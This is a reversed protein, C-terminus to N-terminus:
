FSWLDLPDLSQHLFQQARADESQAKATELARDAASDSVFARFSKQGPLQTPPLSFVVAPPPPQKKRHEPPHLIPATQAEFLTAYTNDLFDDLNYRERLFPEALIRSLTAVAHHYHSQGGLGASRPDRGQNEAAALSSGLAALEWLSSDIAKTKTPDPERADFPDEVGLPGQALRDIEGKMYESTFNRHILVMCQQHRKLLTWILPIVSVVAAPPARLALRSLRKIFSAVMTAPLLPSALFTDLLRLFRARYRMHLVSTTIKEEEGSKETAQNQSTPTRTSGGLLSYLRTYFAPYDLNHYAMLTYLANLALLSTAGGAELATVLWDLLMNPTTLHPLIQIHLRLLLDHTQTLSLTGGKVKGHEVKPLLLALWASTFANAQQTIMHVAEHFPMKSLKPRNRKNAREAVDGLIATNPRGMRRKKRSSSEEQEEESDSFWDDLAADDEPEDGDQTFKRKGKKDNKGSKISIPRMALEPILFGNLDEQKEPVATLLVLLQLAESRMTESQQFAPPTKTLYYSGLTMFVIM